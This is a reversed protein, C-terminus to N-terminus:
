AIKLFVRFSMMKYVKQLVQVGWIYSEVVNKRTLSLMAKKVTEPPVRPPGLPHGFVYSFCM